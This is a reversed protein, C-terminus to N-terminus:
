SSFAGYEAMDPKPEDCALSEARADNTLHCFMRVNAAVGRQFPSSSADKFHPYRDGLAARCLDREYAEQSHLEFHALYLKCNMHENTTLNSWFNLFTHSITMISTFIAFIM